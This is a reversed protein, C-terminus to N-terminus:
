TLASIATDLDGLHTAATDCYLIANSESKEVTGGIADEDGESFVFVYKRYTKTIDFADGAQLEYELFGSIVQQNSHDYRPILQAMVSGIGVAYSGALSIAAVSVTWGQTAGVWNTGARSINSIFYNADDELVLGADHITTANTVTVVCNTSVGAVTGAGTLTKATELWSALTSIDFIWIYGAANDGYFTGGTITCKAVRATEASTEQDVTEGMIFNTAANGSSAGGTYAAITLTYATVNNGAYANIKAALAVYVNTRDTAAAGSLVAASTYAHIAPGRKQSEYRDDPNGIEIKYRTSAVIVEPTVDAGITVLQRVEAAANFSEVRLLKGIRYMGLLLEKGASTKVIGWENTDQILNVRTDEITNLIAVRPRKKM